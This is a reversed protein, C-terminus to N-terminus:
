FSDFPDYEKLSVTNEWEFKFVYYYTSSEKKYDFIRLNLSEENNKSMYNTLYKKLMSMNGCYGKPIEHITRCLYDVIEASFKKENQKNFSDFFQFDGNNRYSYRYHANKGKPYFTVDYIIEDIYDDEDMTAIVYRLEENNSIVVNKNDKFYSAIFKKIVDKDNKADIYEYFHGDYPSSGQPVYFLAYKGHPTTVADEETNSLIDNISERIIQRIKNETLKM